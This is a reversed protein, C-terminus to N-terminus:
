AKAEAKVEPTTKPLTIIFSTGQEAEELQIEGHLRQNVINYVLHMGLGTGGIGRKTTYFPEFIKHKAEESLGQGDDHYRFVINGKNELVDITITGEDKHEFGHLLSNTILNTMVQSISGAYTHMWLQESCNIVVKHKTKKLRPSLTELIENLYDLLIFKRIHEGSQDESVQKFSKILQAARQLNKDLISLSEDLMSIFDVFTQKQMQGQDFQTKLANFNDAIFSQMTICLGLPTNIEHAIGAVMGGLSSLKEAEILKSQTNHLDALTQNLENVTKQLNNTRENVRNELEANIIKLQQQAAIKEKLELNMKETLSNFAGILIDIEDNNDSQHSLLSTFSRSRRHSDVEDALQKIRKNVAQYVIISLLITLLFLSAVQATFNQLAMDIASQLQGETDFSIEIVGVEKGEFKIPIKNIYSSHPRSGQELNINQYDTIRIYNIGRINLIGQLQSRLQIEDFYWLSSGVSASYGEEINVLKEQYSLSQQHYSWLLTAIAVLLSVALSASSFLFIVRKIISHSNSQM